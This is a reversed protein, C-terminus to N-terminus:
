ENVVKFMSSKKDKNKMKDKKKAKRNKMYNKFKIYPLALVKISNAKFAEM